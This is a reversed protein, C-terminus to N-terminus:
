DQKQEDKAAKRREREVEKEIECLGRRTEEDVYKQVLRLFERCKATSEELYPLELASVNKVFYAGGRRYQLNYSKRGSKGVSKVSLGGRTM